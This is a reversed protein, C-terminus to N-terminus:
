HKRKNTCLANYILSVRPPGDLVDGCHWDKEIPDKPPKYWEPNSLNTKSYRPNIFYRRFILCKGINHRNSLHERWKDERISKGCIKCCCNRKSTQTFYNHFKPLEGMDHKYCLHKRWQTVKVFEGCLRCEFSPAKGQHVIKKKM